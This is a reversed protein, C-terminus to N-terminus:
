VPGPRGQGGLGAPDRLGDALCRLVPVADDPRTLVAFHPALDGGRELPGPRPHILAPCAALMEARATMGTSPLPTGEALARAELHLAFEGMVVECAAKCAAEVPDTACGYGPVAGWPGESLAIVAALRGAGPLLLFRLAPAAVGARLAAELARVPAPVAFPRASAAGAFWLAIAHREVAEHWAARAAQALDAGAGLGSVPAHDDGARLAQAADVRGVARLGADLLPLARDEALRPDDPCRTLARAEAVEGMARAFAAQPTPGLGAAHARRGPLPAHSAGCVVAGAALPPRALFVRDCLAALRVLPLVEHGLGAPFGPVRAQAAGQALAAAATAFDQPTM